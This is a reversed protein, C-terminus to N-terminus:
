QANLFRRFSYYAPKRTRDYNLLGASACFSCKGAHRQESGALRVLVTAARELGQPPEPDAQVCATLLRAQGVPGKSLGFRDPRGSGWGLETMWLPTAREGNETWRRASRRSRRPRGRRHQARLSPPSRRRLQGRIGAPRLARGPVDVRQRRRKRANRRPRDAGKPGPEQDGHPLHRVLHAYEPASPKPAFYKSLNPENWVQWSEIPMPIADPYQQQYEHTWYTGNPGYRNVLAKLFDQWAREAEPSDLPPRASIARSGDPIEPCPRSRGSGTRHSPASWPMPRAGLRVIGAPAPGVALVAPLPGDQDRDLADDPLGTSRAPNGPRDRLVDAPRRNRPGSADGSGHILSAALGGVLAASLAVVLVLRLAPNM